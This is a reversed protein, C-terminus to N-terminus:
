PLLLPTRVAAGVFIPMLGALELRLLSQPPPTLFVACPGGCLADGQRRWAALLERAANESLM